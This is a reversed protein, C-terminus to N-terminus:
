VVMNPHEIIQLDELVGPAGHLLSGMFARQFRAHAYRLFRRIHGMSLICPHSRLWLGIILVGFLLSWRISSVLVVERGCWAGCASVEDYDAPRRQQEMRRSFPYRMVPHCGM